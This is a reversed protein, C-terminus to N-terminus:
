DREGEPVRYAVEAPLAYSWPLGSNRWGGVARVGASPGERLREGEFGDTVSYVRTYGLDHLRDAAPASRTAGSRCIVLIPADRAVGQAELRAVVEDDFRPNPVLRYRHNAQDFDAADVLVWPVHVSTPEAFGTFMAEVPDRVDVLVAAPESQMLEWAQAATVYLGLKTRALEGEPPQSQQALAGASFLLAAALVIVLRTM